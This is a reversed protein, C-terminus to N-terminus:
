LAGVSSAALRLWRSDDFAGPRHGLFLLYACVPTATVFHSLTV